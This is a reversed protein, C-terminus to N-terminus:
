GYAIIGAISSDVKSEACGRLRSDMKSWGAGCARQWGAGCALSSSVSPRYKLARKPSRTRLIGMVRCPKVQGFISP